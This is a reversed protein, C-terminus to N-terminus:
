YLMFLGTPVVNSRGLHVRIMVTLIKLLQDM